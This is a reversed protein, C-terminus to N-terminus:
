LRCDHLLWLFPPDIQGQREVFFNKPAEVNRKSTRRIHTEIAAFGRHWEHTLINREPVIWDNYTAIIKIPIRGLDFFHIVSVTKKNNNRTAKPASPYLPESLKDKLSQSIEDNYNRNRGTGMQWEGSM